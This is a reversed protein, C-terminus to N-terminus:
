PTAAFPHRQVGARALHQFTRHRPQDLTAEGQHSRAKYQLLHVVFVEGALVFDTALAKRRALGDFRHGPARPRHLGVATRLIKDIGGANPTMTFTRQPTTHPPTGRQGVNFAAGGEVLGTLDAMAKRFAPAPLLVLCMEGPVM